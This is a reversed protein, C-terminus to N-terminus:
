QPDVGLEDRLAQKCRQFARMAEDTRGLARLGAMVARHGRECAVDLDIAQQARAVAAAFDGATHTLEAVRLLIDLQRARYQERLRLAWGGYPENALVEGQVLDLAEDLAKRTGVQVLADFEDLDTPLRAPDIRYAGPETVLPSERKAGGLLRRVNSVYTELTAAVNAPLSDGWLRDALQDKAVTRGRECLLIELLQRPKVGGFDRPGLCTGGTEVALSGFMRARM